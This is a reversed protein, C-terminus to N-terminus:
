LHIEHALKSGRKQSGRDSLVRGSGVVGLSGTTGSQWPLAAGSAHEAGRDATTLHAPTEYTYPTGWCPPLPHPQPLARSHSARRAPAPSPTRSPLARQVRLTYNQRHPVMVNQLLRGHLPEGDVAIITDGVRLGHAKGGDVHHLVTNHGDLELELGKPGAACVFEHLEIARPPSSRTSRPTGGRPALRRAEVAWEEAADTVAQRHLQLVYREKGFVADEFSRGDIWQGDVGVIVDGVSLTNQAEAHGGKIISVIKNHDDIQLGLGEAGARCKFENLAPIVREIQLTYHSRGAPAVAHFHRGDLMEGDVAVVVDRLRLVGQAQANGGDVIRSIANYEDIEVGLGSGAANCIFENVAPLLRRVRLKYTDRGPAAVDKFLRRRLYEGDVALIVDQERIRGTMAAEGGELVKVVTNHEDVLIGLSANFVLRFPRYILLTHQYRGPAFAARLPRGDLALDDVAVLTDGACILGEALRPELSRVARDLDQEPTAGVRWAYEFTEEALQVPTCRSSRPRLSESSAMPMAERYLEPVDKVPRSGSERLEAKELALAKETCRPVKAATSRSCHQAACCPIM